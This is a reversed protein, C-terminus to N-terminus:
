MAGPNNMVIQTDHYGTPYGVAPPPAVFGFEKEIERMPPHPAVVGGNDILRQGKGTFDRLYDGSSPMKWYASPRTVEDPPVGAALLAQEKFTLAYGSWVAVEAVYGDMFDLFGAGNTIVGIRTIDHAGHGTKTDTNTGMRTFDGDVLCTRKTTSYQVGVLHHWVKPTIKNAASAFATGGSDRITLEAQDNSDDIRLFNWKLTSSVDGESWIGFEDGSGSALQSLWVWASASFVEFPTLIVRDGFELYDTSAKKFWRGM